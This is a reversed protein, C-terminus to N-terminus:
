FRNGSNNNRVSDMMDGVKLRRKTEDSIEALLIRHIEDIKQNASSIKADVLSLRSEIAEIKVRILENDNGLSSYGSNGGVFQNQQQFSSPASSFPQQFSNPSNQGQSFSNSFQSNQYSSDIGSDFSSSSSMNEGAVNSNNMNPISYDDLKFGDEKKKGLPLKFM